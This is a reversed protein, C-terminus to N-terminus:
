KVTLPSNKELKEFVEEWTDGTALVENCWGLKRIAEFRYYMTWGEIKRRERYLDTKQQCMEVYWNLEKLRRKIEADIHDSEAITAQVRALAKARREPSSLETGVRMAARKGLLKTLRKWAQDRTM